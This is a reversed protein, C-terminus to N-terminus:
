VMGAASLLLWTFLGVAFTISVAGVLEWAWDTDRHHALGAYCDLCVLDGMLRHQAARGLRDGCDACYRDDWTIM